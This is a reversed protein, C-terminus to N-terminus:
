INVVLATIDDMKARMHINKQRAREASADTLAKAFDAGGKKNLLHQMEASTLNDHVGDSTLIVMDGTKVAFHKVDARFEHGLGLCAGIINRRKFMEMEIDSLRSFSEADALKEQQRMAEHTQGEQRFPTHDTTLAKLVGDSLLYARSDGAHAVSAYLAGNIRHIKALVATTAAGPARELIQKNADILIGRLYTDAAKLSSFEEVDRAMESTCDRAERSAIDGGDYGGVGDFVAYMNNSTDILISDENRERHKESAVSSGRADHVVLPEAEAVKQSFSAEVFAEDNGSSIPRRTIYTGNHSQLDEVTITKGDASHTILAHNKSVTEPFKNFRYVSQQHLRGLTVSEDPRLAKYGKDKDIDFDSELLLIKISPHLRVGRGGDASASVKESPTLDETKTIMYSGVASRGLRIIVPLDDTDIVEVGDLRYYECDHEIAAFRAVTKSEDPRDVSSANM